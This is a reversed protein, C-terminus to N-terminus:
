EYPYRMTYDWGPIKNHGDGHKSNRDTGGGQGFKAQLLQAARQMSNRGMHVKSVRTVAIEDRQALTSGFTGPM